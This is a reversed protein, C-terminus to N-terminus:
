LGTWAKSIDLTLESRLSKVESQQSEQLACKWRKDSSLSQLISYFDQESRQAAISSRALDIESRLSNLDTAHQESSSRALDIRRFVAWARVMERKPLIHRVLQQVSKLLSHSSETEVKLVAIDQVHAEMDSRWSAVDSRFSNLDGRLGNLGNGVDTRQSSFDTRLSGLDTRLSGLDTRLTKLDTGQSGLETRTTTIDARCSDLDSRLSTIDSRVPNLESRLTSFESRHTDLDSRLAGDM